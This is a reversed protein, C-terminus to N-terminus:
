AFSLLTLYCDRILSFDLLPSFFRVKADTGAAAERLDEDTRGAEDSAQGAKDWAQGRRDGDGNQSLLPCATALGRGDGCM